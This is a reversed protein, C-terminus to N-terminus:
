CIGSESMNPCIKSLIKLMESLIWCKPYIKAYNPRLWCKIYIKSLNRNRVFKSETRNWDAKLMEVFILCKCHNRVFESESLIEAWNWDFNRECKLMKLWFPCSTSFTSAPALLLLRRFLLLLKQQLL